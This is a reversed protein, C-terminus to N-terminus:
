KMLIMKKLATYDGATITYFYVGSSVLNDNADKSDWLIEQYGGQRVGHVLDIIKQGVINYVSVTVFMEDTLAFGM